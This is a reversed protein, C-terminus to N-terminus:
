LISLQDDEIEEPESKFPIVEITPRIMRPGDSPAHTVTEGGSGRDDIMTDSSSTTVTVGGYVKTEITHLEACGGRWESPDEPDQWWLVIPGGCLLCRSQPHPQEVTM